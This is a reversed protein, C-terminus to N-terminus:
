CSQSEQSVYGEKALTEMAAGLKAENVMVMPGTCGMGSEAYIGAKWLAQVADELDIIDIGGITGTVVEKAPAVVEEESSKKKEKTLKALVGALDAKKAKAFEDKSIEKIKGKAVDAGYAIANAVVPTGSARSIIMITRGYGDGVGPGYGFGMAEYSGGTTFSSFMKMLLNGTLSDTIMVDPTGMLLDNGRMVIGGDARASEAFTLDYGNGKLERLANETQRAGDVNLIGVTPNEIGLAKATVVGYLGNKVMGEVRHTSSTGTTTAIVMEKGTAPTIVRGVTSVGIPFSYHMTVASDIEGSDLLQEMKKHQEEETAVEVIRLDTEVKPGILVVEISSDRKQALEAGKLINEVGHESGLLTIGVRTKEGFEGSEIANAIENLTSSIMAKVKQDSM